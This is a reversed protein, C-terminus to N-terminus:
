IAGAMPGLEKMGILERSEAPTSPCRACLRQRQARRPPWLAVNALRRLDRQVREHAFVATAVFVDIGGRYRGSLPPRRQMAHFRM